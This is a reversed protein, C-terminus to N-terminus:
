NSKSDKEDLDSKADTESKENSNSEEESEESSDLDIKSESPNEAKRKKKTEEQRVEIDQKSESNALIGEDVEKLAKESADKESFRQELYEKFMSDLKKDRDRDQIRKGYQKVYELAYFKSRGEKRKKYYLLIMRRGLRGKFSERISEIIYDDGSAIENKALGSLAKEKAEEESFGRKIYEEEIEKLVKERAEEKSYSKLVYREFMSALRKGSKSRDQSKTRKSYQRAYELAYLKSRQEEIKKDLDSSATEKEIERSAKERADEESFGRKIYEKEIEKLVKERAEEQSYGKLVYTEFASALKDAYKSGNQDEIKKSYQRVYEASYLKSRGQRRKENYLSMMKHGLGENGKFSGIISELISKDSATEDIKFKMEEEFDEALRRSLEEPLNFRVLLEAYKRAYTDSKGSELEQEYIVRIRDEQSQEICKDERNENEMAMASLGPIVSGLCLLCATLKIIKM